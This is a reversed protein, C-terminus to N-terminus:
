AAPLIAVLDRAVARHARIAWDDYKLGMAVYLALVVLSLDFFVPLINLRLVPVDYLKLLGGRRILAFEDYRLRGVGIFAAALVTVFMLAANRSTAFMSSLAILATCGAVGYLLLVARRHDIGRKLLRHHIHDRDAQFMGGGRRELRHEARRLVTVLTDALPVGMVLVPVLIAMGSSLASGSRLGLCALCFGIATAGSDGLFVRAPYLNFPLFGILAGVLVLPLA